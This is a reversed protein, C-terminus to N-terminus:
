QAFAYSLISICPTIIIRKHQCAPQLFVSVVENAAGYFFERKKQLGRPQSELSGFYPVILSGALGSVLGVCTFKGRERGNKWGLVLRMMLLSYTWGKKGFEDCGDLQDDNM